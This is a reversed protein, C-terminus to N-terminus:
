STVAQVSHAMVFVAFTHIATTAASKATTIASSIVSSTCPAFASRSRRNSAQSTYGGLSWAYQSHTSCTSQTM